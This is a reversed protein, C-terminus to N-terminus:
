AVFSDELELRGNHGSTLVTEMAVRGASRAPDSKAAFEIAKFHFDVKWSGFRGVACFRRPGSDVFNM